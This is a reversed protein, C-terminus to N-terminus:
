PGSTIRGIKGGAFLYGTKALVMPPEDAASVSSALGPSGALFAGLLSRFAARLGRKPETIGHMTGERISESM